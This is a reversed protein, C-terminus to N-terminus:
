EATEEGASGDCGTLPEDLSLAALIQERIEPDASELSVARQGHSRDDAGHGEHFSIPTAFQMQGLTAMYIEELAELIEPDHPFEGM